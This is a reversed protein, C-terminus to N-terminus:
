ELDIALSREVQARLGDKYTPACTSCVEWLLKPEPLHAPLAAHPSAGFAWGCVARGAGEPHGEPLMLHHMRSKTNLVWNRPAEPAPEPAPFAAALESAGGGGCREQVEAVVRALAARRLHPQLPALRTYREVVESSWRGMLRVAEPSWGALIM